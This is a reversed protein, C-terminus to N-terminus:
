SLIERVLYLFSENKYGPYSAGPFSFAGSKVSSDLGKLFHLGKGGQDLM